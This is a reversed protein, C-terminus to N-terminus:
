MTTLSLSPAITKVNSSMSRNWSLQDKKNVLMNIEYYYYRGVDSSDFWPLGRRKKIQKDIDM